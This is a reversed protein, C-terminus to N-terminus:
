LDDVWRGSVDIKKFPSPNGMADLAEFTKESRVYRQGCRCEILIGHENYGLERYDNVGCTGNRCSPLWRLHNLRLRFAWSAIVATGLALVVVWPRIGLRHGIFPSAFLILGVVGLVYALVFINM